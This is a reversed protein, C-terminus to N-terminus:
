LGLDRLLKDLSPCRHRSAEVEFLQSFAPQDTTPSYRRGMLKGLAEKAGRIAEPDDVPAADIPIGRKGRLSEIAGLFWAEFEHRALVVRVDHVSGCKKIRELLRPGLECPLDEDSDLLVLLTGSAGIRRHAFDVVKELEGAKMLRNRKGRWPRLVARAPVLRRLLVPLAEVEGDGEVICQIPGSEM